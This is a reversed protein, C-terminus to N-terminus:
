LIREEFLSILVEVQAVYLKEINVNKRSYIVLYVNYTFSDVSCVCNKKSELYLINECEKEMSLYLLLSCFLVDILRLTITPRLYFVNVSCEFGNLYCSGIAQCMEMGCYYGIFIRYSQIRHFLLQSFKVPYRTDRSNHVNYLIFNFIDAHLFEHLKKERLLVLFDSTWIWSLRVCYYRM